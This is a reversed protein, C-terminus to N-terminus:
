QERKDHVDDMIGDGKIRIENLAGSFSTEVYGPHRYAHVLHLKTYINSLEYAVNTESVSLEVLDLMNQETVKTLTCGHALNSKRCEAKKTWVVMVDLQSGDDVLRREQHGLRAKFIGKQEKLLEKPILREKIEDSSPGEPYDRM